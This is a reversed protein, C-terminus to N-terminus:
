NPVPILANLLGQKWTKDGKNYIGFGQSFEWYSWSWKREEAQRAVFNTWRIRSEM